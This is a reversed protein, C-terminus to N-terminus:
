LNDSLRRFDDILAKQQDTLRDKASLAIEFVHQIGFTEVLVALSPAVQDTVWREIRAVSQQVEPRSVLHLYELSGVFDAWWGCMSCRSINSDDREIFAFKDNLVQAALQGIPAGQTVQHVFANAQEARMVMEVRVWHEDTGQELAKDYIRLRFASSAAGIYVTAGNKYLGDWSVLVSRASMRSNIENCQVKEIIKDMDLAGAHDDCAIDIRSVHSGPTDELLQFLAAFPVPGYSSMAEFARCGNGSMSVCVGMNQFYDNERPEYCVLIDSFRLVRNYGLIGYGADQFLGPEMGLFNRIVEQPTYEAVSVHSDNEYKSTTVTFTLWDVLVEAKM